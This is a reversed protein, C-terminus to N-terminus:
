DTAKSIGRCTIIHTHWQDDGAHQVHILLQHTGEQKQSLIMQTIKFGQLVPHPGTVLSSLFHHIQELIHIVTTGATLCKVFNTFLGNHVIVTVVTSIVDQIDPEQDERRGAL